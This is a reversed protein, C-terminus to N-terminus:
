RPSDDPSGDSPAGRPATTQHASSRSTSGQSTTGGVRAPRHDLRRTRGRQGPTVRYALGAPTRWEFTGSAVQRLTFGGDTKLRHCRASLPGLNDASTTGATPAGNAPAAHYETTHDLECRDAPVTCGPGACVQDRVVVHDALARPPRYRTRGVDLVAGTLPDTVIRRWVGDVALARAQEAPVPGLGALEAPQDDLGMLTSLAVTVDIRVAPIRIGPARRGARSGAGPTSSDTTGPVAAGGVAAACDTAGALLAHGTALDSLTDARLQDLTRPDGAARAARATADLTTDIRAADAAPLVAWLGAMGDPLRRPHCVHRSAIARPLRRAADDPDIALLARDIDAALQTPTRLAAEPLVAQQVPWSLQYPRDHLRDTLVRLKPTDVLGERVADAVPMLGGQLARGDRVLRHAAPRSWGMRMALEDGAVCTRSPAPSQWHPNMSARRSLVAATLAAGLHAWAALREWAAVAEVLAADDLPGGDPEAPSLLEPDLLELVAALGSGPELRELLSAASWRDLPGAVPLADAPSGPGGWTMADPVWWDDVQPDDGLLLWADSRLEDGSLM